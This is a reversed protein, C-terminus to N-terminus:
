GSSVVFIDVGVFGFFFLDENLHFFIVFVVSIARLIDFKKQYGFTYNKKM